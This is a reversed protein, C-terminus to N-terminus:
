AKVGMEARVLFVKGRKKKFEIETLGSDVGSKYDQNDCLDRHCLLSGNKKFRAFRCERCQNPDIIWFKEKAM